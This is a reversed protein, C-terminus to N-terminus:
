LTDIYFYPDKHNTKFRKQPLFEDSGFMFTSATPNRKLHRILFIWNLRM